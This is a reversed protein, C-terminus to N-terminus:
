SNAGTANNIGNEVKDEVRDLGEEADQIIGDGTNREAEGNPTTEDGIVGNEDTVVGDEATPSNTAKPLATASPAATVRPMTTATPATNPTVTNETNMRDGCASLISMMLLAFAVIAVRKKM